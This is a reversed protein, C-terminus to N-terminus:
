FYTSVAVLLIVTIMVFLIKWTTVTLYQLWEPLSHFVGLVWDIIDVVFQPVLGAM